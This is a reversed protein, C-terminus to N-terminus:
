SRRHLADHQMETLSSLSRRTDKKNQEGTPTRSRKKKKQKGSAFSPAQRLASVKGTTKGKLGRATKLSAM